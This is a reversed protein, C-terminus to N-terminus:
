GTFGVHSSSSEGEHLDAYSIKALETQNYFLIMVTNNCTNISFGPIEIQNHKAIM